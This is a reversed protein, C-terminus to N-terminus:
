PTPTLRRQREAQLLLRVLGALGEPQEKAWRLLDPQLLIHTDEYGKPLPGRRKPTHSTTNM